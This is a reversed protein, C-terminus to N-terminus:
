GIVRLTKSACTEGDLKVYVEIEGPTDFRCVKGVEVMGNATMSVDNEGCKFLLQSKEPSYANFSVVVSQGANITSSSLFLACSRKGRAQSANGSQGFAARGCEAGEIYAIAPSQVDLKDCFFLANQKMGAKGTPCVVTVERVSDTKVSIYFISSAQDKHFEVTCNEAPAAPTANEEIKAPAPPAPEKPATQPMQAQTQEVPAPQAEAQSFPLVCGSLFLPLCVALVAYGSYGM